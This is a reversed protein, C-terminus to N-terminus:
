VLTAIRQLARQAAHSDRVFRSFGRWASPHMGVWTILKATPWWEGGAASQLLAPPLVMDSEADDSFSRVTLMPINAECAIRFLETSEMDVAAAGTKQRLKLKSVPSDVIEAASCMTCIAIDELHPTGRLQNVWEASSLNEALILDGAKLGPALAGAFGSSIIKQPRSRYIRASLAAAASEAGIGTHFIETGAPLVVRMAVSEFPLACCVLTM